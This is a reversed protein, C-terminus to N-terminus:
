RSRGGFRGGPGGRNRSSSKGGVVRGNYGSRSGRGGRGVGRQNGRGGGRSAREAKEQAEREAAAKYAEMKEPNYFGDKWNFRSTEPIVQGKIMSNLVLKCEQKTVKTRSFDVLVRKILDKRFQAGKDVISFPNEPMVFTGDQNTLVKFPMEEKDWFYMFDYSEPLQFRMRFLAPYGYVTVMVRDRVNKDFTNILNERSNEVPTIFAGVNQNELWSVAWRNFTYLYPGGILNVNKGKLM